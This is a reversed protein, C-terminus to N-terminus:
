GARDRRVRRTLIALNHLSDSIAASELSSHRRTVLVAEEMRWRATALAAFPWRILQAEVAAKRRWFIPPRAGAIVSAVPAGGDMALRLGQLHLLHRLAQAGLGAFSGGEARLRDLGTELTEHDGLLAADIVEDSRLEAVDGVVAAVDAPTVRGTGAVYHFLKELEGRSQLRDGGLHAALMELAAPEMVVGADAATASIFSALSAGELHFAPIAAARSSAEFAKRLPSAPTLEGAEVVLWASDPPRELLPMLAGIVNHRGDLVRLSVVPEGGFLSASNAEEAILGPTSAILDSGFRQVSDAGGRQLAVREVLRARETVTGPDNGYLLFMRISDPPSVLYREANEDKVVTM